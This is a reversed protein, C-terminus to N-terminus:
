SKLIHNAKGGAGSAQGSTQGCTRNDDNHARMCAGHWTGGGSNEIIPAASKTVGVIAANHWPKLERCSSLHTITSVRPHEEDSRSTAYDDQTTAVNSHGDHRGAHNHPAKIPAAEQTCDYPGRM